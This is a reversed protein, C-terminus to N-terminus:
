AARATTLAQFEAITMLVPQAKVRRKGIGKVTTRALGKLLADVRAPKGNQPEMYLEDLFATYRTGPITIAHTVRSHPELRAVPHGLPASAPRSYYGDRKTNWTSM